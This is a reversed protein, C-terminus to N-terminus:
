WPSVSSVSFVFAPHAGGEPVDRRRRPGPHHPTRVRRSQPRTGHGRSRPCPKEVEPGHTCMADLATASGASCAIGIDLRPFVTSHILKCPPRRPRAPRRRPLIEL